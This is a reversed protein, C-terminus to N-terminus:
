MGMYRCTEASIVKHWMCLQASHQKAQCQMTCMKIENKQLWQM